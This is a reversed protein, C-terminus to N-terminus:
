DILMVEMKMDGYLEDETLGCTRIKEAATKAIANIEDQTMGLDKRIAEDTEWDPALYIRAEVSRLGVKEMLAKMCYKYRETPTVM